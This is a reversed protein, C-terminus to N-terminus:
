LNRGFQFHMGDKRSFRGGWTFGNEEFIRVIVEHMTPESGLKNTDPNLDIGALWSHVSWETGGRIKRLATTGGFEWLYVSLRAKVIADFVNYLPDVIQKNVSIDRVTKVRDWSLRLVFPLRVTSVNQNWWGTDYEYRGTRSVYIGPFAGYFRFWEEPGIPSKFMKKRKNYFERWPGYPDNPNMREDFTPHNM